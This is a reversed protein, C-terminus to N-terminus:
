EGSVSGPGKASLDLWRPKVTASRWQTWCEEIKQVASSSDQEVQKGQVVVAPTATKTQTKTRKKRPGAPTGEEGARRKAKGQEPNTATGIPRQPLPNHLTASIPVITNSARGSPNAVGLAPVARHIMPTALTDASVTSRRPLDYVVRGNADVARGDQFTSVM